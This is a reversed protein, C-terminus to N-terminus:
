GKRSGLRGAVVLGLLGIIVLALGPATARTLTTPEGSSVATFTATEPAPPVPPHGEGPLREVQALLKDSEPATGSAGGAVWVDGDARTFFVYTTDTALEGLSCTDLTRETRVQVSNTTVNGKYVLDVEVEHTFVAGRQGGPKPERAVSTVVGTFIATASM